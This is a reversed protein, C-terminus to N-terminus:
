EKNTTPLSGNSILFFLHGRPMLDEKNVDCHGLSLQLPKVIAGEQAGEPEPGDRIM